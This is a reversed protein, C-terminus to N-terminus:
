DLAIWGYKQFYWESSYASDVGTNAIPWPIGSGVADGYVRNPGTKHFDGNIALQVDVENAWSGTSQFMDDVHTADVHIGPM